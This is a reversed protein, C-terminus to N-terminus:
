GHKNVRKLFQGKFEKEYEENDKASGGVQVDSCNENYTDVYKNQKMDWWAMVIEM